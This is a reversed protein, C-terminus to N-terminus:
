SKSVGRRESYFKDPKGLWQNVDGPDHFYEGDAGWQSLVQTRWRANALDREHSVVVAVHSVNGQTDRYLVIDGPMVTSVEVERYGDDLFIMEVHAPEIWARRNAFAMGICNYTASLSRLRASPHNELVLRMGESLSEPAREPRRVNPIRRNKSTALDISDRDRAGGENLIVPM